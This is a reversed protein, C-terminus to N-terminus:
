SDLWLRKAFEAQAIRVGSHEPIGLGFRLYEAWATLRMTPTTPLAEIRPDSVGVSKLLVRKVDDSLKGWMKLPRMKEGENVLIAKPVRVAALSNACDFKVLVENPDDAAIGECVGADGLRLSHSLHELGVALRVGKAPWIQEPTAPGATGEGVPTAMGEGEALPTATGAGVPTAM